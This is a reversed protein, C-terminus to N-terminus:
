LRDKTDAALYMSIWTFYKLDDDCFCNLSVCIYVFMSFLLGFYHNVLLFIFSFLYLTERIVLKYKSWIAWFQNSFTLKLQIATSLYAEDVNTSPHVFSLHHSYHSYGSSWTLLIMLKLQLHYLYIKSYSICTYTDSHLLFCFSWIHIYIASSSIAFHYSLIMLLMYNSNCWQWACRNLVSMKITLNCKVFHCFDIMTCHQRAVWGGKGFSFALYIQYIMLRALLLGESHKLCHRWDWEKFNM